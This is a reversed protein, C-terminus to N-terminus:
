AQGVARRGHFPRRGRVALAGAMVLMAAAAGLGAGIAADSWDFGDAPAAPATEPGLQAVFPEAKSGDRRLAPVNSARTDSKGSVDAVLPVAKSGDRRLTIDGSKGLAPAALGAVVCGALATIAIRTWISTKMTTEKRRSAIQKMPQLRKM